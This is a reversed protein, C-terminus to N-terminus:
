EEIGGLDLQTVFALLKGNNAVAVDRWAVDDFTVVTLACTPYQLALRDLTRDDGKKVLKVALQHVGPNHAVVMLSSVEESMGPLMSLIEGASANYLKDRYEVELSPVFASQMAAVTQRTRLAGSCWVQEPRMQNRLMYASLLSAAQVGSPALARDFDEQAPLGLEAKAHRLIYLTKQM